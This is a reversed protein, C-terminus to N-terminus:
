YIKESIGNEEISISVSNRISLLHLEFREQNVHQLSYFGNSDWKFNLIFNFKKDIEQIMAPHPQKFLFSSGSNMMFNCEKVKKILSELSIYQPENMEIRFRLNLKSLSQKSFEFTVLELPYKFYKSDL